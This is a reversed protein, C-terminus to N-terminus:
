IMELLEDINEKIDLTDIEQFFAKKDIPKFGQERKM